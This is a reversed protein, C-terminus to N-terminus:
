VISIVGSEEVVVKSFIKKILIKKWGKISSLIILIFNSSVADTNNIINHKHIKWCYSFFFKLFGTKLEM